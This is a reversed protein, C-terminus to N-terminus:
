RAISFFSTSLLMLLQTLVSLYRVSVAAWPANSRGQDDDPCDTPSKCNNETNVKTEPTNFM